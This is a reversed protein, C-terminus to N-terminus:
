DSKRPAAAVAGPQFVRKRCIFSPIYKTLMMNKSILKKGTLFLLCDEGGHQCFLEIQNETKDSFEPNVFRYYQPYLLFSSLFTTRGYGISSNFSSAGPMFTTCTGSGYGISSNFCKGAAYWVMAAWLRGYGISSNFSGFSLTSVRLPNGVM